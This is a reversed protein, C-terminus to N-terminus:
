QIGGFYRFAVGFAIVSVIIGVMFINYTIRLIKYKRDLVKGLFYLDKSLSSYLYDRDNMMENMAWEFDQLGMKHFNGFFLLNVKKNEVDERTFVGSTVNPRTAIISLVISILNFILFILTPFILYGNSPNDLKPILSSLALSIIIANVSLLINAKTDAIQSLSIHNRLAVRYMTEVGRDPRKNKEKKLQKELAKEEQKKLEKTQKILNKSKQPQWNELAYSTHYRHHKNFMKINEKMWEIDTYTKGMQRFEERLLDSTHEYNKSGFHSFDADRIICELPSNPTHTLETALICDAVKKIKDTDYGEKTLFATAIEAGLAEHGQPQQVYGLDHMWGAVRLIEADEDSINEEDLLENIHKVVRKAHNYNHYVYTNALKETLTDQVFKQVKEEIATM